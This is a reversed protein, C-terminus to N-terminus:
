EAMEFSVAVRGPANDDYKFGLWWAGIPKPPMEQKMPWGGGQQIGWEQKYTPLQVCYLNDRYVINRESVRIRPIKMLWQEHIHGSAIIDVDPQYVARRTANLTGKTVPGGGGGGHHFYLLRNTNKGGNFVFRVYGAYGFYAADLRKALRRALNSGYHKLVADEHNGLSVSKVDNDKLTDELRDVLVDLYEDDNYEESLEGKSSRPDGRGQMADFTDGILFVGANRKRAQKLHRHFLKHDCTPSDYHVDSALLYYQEWGAKVKDHRVVLVESDERKTM